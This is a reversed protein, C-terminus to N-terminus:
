YKYKSIKGIMKEIEYVNTGRYNGRWTRLHKSIIDQLKAAISQLSKNPVINQNDAQLIIKELNLEEFAYKLILNKSTKNVKTGHFKSNIWSGGLQSTKINYDINAIRTTGITKNANQIAWVIATFSEVKILAEKIYLELETINTLKVLGFEWLMDAFAFKQLENIDELVIPILRINNKELIM